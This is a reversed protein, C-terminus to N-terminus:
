SSARQRKFRKELETLKITHTKPLKHKHSKAIAFWGQSNGGDDEYNYAEPDNVDYVECGTSHAFMYAEHRELRQESCYCTEADSWCTQFMANKVRDTQEPLDVMKFVPTELKELESKIEDIRINLDSKVLELAELKSELAEKRDAKKKTEM